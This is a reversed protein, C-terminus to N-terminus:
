LVLGTIKVAGVAGAMVPVELVSGVSQPSVSPEIVMKACPLPLKSYLSVLPGVFVLQCVLLTNVPRAAPM